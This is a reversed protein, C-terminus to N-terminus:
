ISLSLVRDSAEPAPVSISVAYRDFESSSSIESMFRCSMGLEFFIVGSNLGEIDNPLIHAFDAPFLKFFEESDLINPESDKTM